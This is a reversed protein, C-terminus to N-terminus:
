INILICLCIMSLYQSIIYWIFTFFNYFLKSIKLLNSSVDFFFQEILNKLLNNGINEIVNLTNNLLIVRSIELFLILLKVWATKLAHM